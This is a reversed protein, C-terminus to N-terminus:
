FGCGTPLDFLCLLFVRERESMSVANAWSSLETGMSKLIPKRTFLKLNKVMDQVDEYKHAERFNNTRQCGSFSGSTRGTMFIDLVLPYVYSYLGTPELALDDAYPHVFM